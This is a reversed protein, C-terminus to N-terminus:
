SFEVHNEWFAIVAQPYKRNAIKSSVWQPENQDIFKIRFFLGESENRVAEINDVLLAEDVLDSTDQDNRNSQRPTKDHHQDNANTSFSISSTSIPALQSRLNTTTRANAPSEKSSSSKDSFEITSNNPNNNNDDDLTIM